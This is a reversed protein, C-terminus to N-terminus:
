RYATSPGPIYIGLRPLQLESRMRVGFTFDVEALALLIWRWTFDLGAVLLIWELWSLTFDLGAVIWTSM